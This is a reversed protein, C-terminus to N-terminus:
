QDTTVCPVIYAYNDYEIIFLKQHPYKITNPHDGYFLIHEKAIADEIQEFSISRTKKLVTNKDVDREFIM